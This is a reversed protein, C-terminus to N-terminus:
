ISNREANGTLTNYISVHLASPGSDIVYRLENDTQIFASCVVIFFLVTSYNRTVILGV